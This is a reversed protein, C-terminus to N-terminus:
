ELFALITEALAEPQDVDVLHGADEITQVTTPGSIGDSFRKAYSAPVVRDDSGWVLAVRVLLLGGVLYGVQPAGCLMTMALTTGLALIWPITRYRVAREGAALALPFWGAGCLFIINTYQYLVYGGLTYAM